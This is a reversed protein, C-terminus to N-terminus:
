EISDSELTSKRRNLIMGSVEEMSGKDEEM